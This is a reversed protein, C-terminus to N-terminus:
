AISVHGVARGEDREGSRVGREPLLAESVTSYTSYLVTLTYLVLLVQPRRLQRNVGNLWRPDQVTEPPEHQDPALSAREKGKMGARVMTHRVSPTPARHRDRM